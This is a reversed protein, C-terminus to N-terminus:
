VSRDCSLEPSFMVGTVHFLRGLTPPVSPIDQLGWSSDESPLVGRESGGRESGIKDSVPSLFLRLGNPGM